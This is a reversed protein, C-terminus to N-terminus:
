RVTKQLLGTLKSIEKKGFIIKVPNQYIFNYM